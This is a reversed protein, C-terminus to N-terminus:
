RVMLWEGNKVRPKSMARIISATLEESVDTYRLYICTVINWFATIKM